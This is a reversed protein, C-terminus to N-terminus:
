RGDPNFRLFKSPIRKVQEMAQNRRADQSRLKHQGISMIQTRDFRSDKRAAIAAHKRSSATVFFDGIITKIKYENM